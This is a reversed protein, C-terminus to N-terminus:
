ECDGGDFLCGATNYLPDWDDCYGNGLASVGFDSGCVGEDTCDAGSPLAGSDALDTCGLESGTLWVHELSMGFAGAEVSGIANHALSVYALDPNAFTGARTPHSINNSSVDIGTALKLGRFTESTINIIRNNHVSLGRLSTLRNFLGTPIETLQNHNLSLTVLSGLHDFLGPAVEILNNHDLYLETLSGLNDFLGPHLEIIGNFDLGLRTLTGVKDFTGPAIETIWNHELRILYPNRLNNFEGAPLTELENDFLYFCSAGENGEFADENM